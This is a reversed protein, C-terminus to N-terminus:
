FKVANTQVEQLHAKIYDLDSTPHIVSMLSALGVVCGLGMSAVIFAAFERSM